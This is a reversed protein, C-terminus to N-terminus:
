RGPGPRRKRPGGPNRRRVPRPPEAAWGASPDPDDASGGAREPLLGAREDEPLANFEDMWAQLEALRASDPDSIDLVEALDAPLDDLDWDDDLADDHADDSVAHPLHSMRTILDEWDTVGLHPLVAALVPLAQVTPGHSTALNIRALRALEAGADQLSMERPVSGDAALTSRVADAEALSMPSTLTAEVLIPGDGADTTVIIAIQASKAAPRRCVLAFAPLRDEDALHWVKTPALGGCRRALPSPGRAGAAAARAVADRAMAAIGPTAMLGMVHLASIGDPSKELRSIVADAFILGEPSAVADAPILDRAMEELEWARKSHRFWQLFGALGEDLLEDAPRRDHGAM